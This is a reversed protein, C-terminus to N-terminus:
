ISMLGIVDFSLIIFNNMISTLLLKIWREEKPLDCWDLNKTRKFNMNNIEQTFNVLLIIASKIVEQCSMIMELM